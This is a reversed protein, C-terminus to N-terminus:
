DDKQWTMVLLSNAWQSREGYALWPVDLPQMGWQFAPPDIKDYRTLTTMDLLNEQAVQAVDLWPAGQWGYPLTLLLTGGPALWSKMRAVAAQMADLDPLHELTSISLILDYDQDPEWTLVDANFVDRLQEELDIVFHGRNSYHPLVAGVELVRNPPVQEVEHLGIAVEVARENWRTRNYPHDHYHLYHGDWPFWDFDYREFTVMRLGGWVTDDPLTGATRSVIGADYLEDHNEVLWDIAASVGELYADHFILCAQSALYPLMRSVDLIIAAAAHDGDILVFDFLAAPGNFAAELGEPSPMQVVTVRDTEDALAWTPDDWKPDPDLCIIEGTGLRELAHAMVVASGGAHSGIELIRAPRRGLVLAWLVLRELYGMQINLGDAFLSELASMPVPDDFTPMLQKLVMM